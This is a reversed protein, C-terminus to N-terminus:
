GDAFTMLRAVNMDDELLPILLITFTEEVTRM